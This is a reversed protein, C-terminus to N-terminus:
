FRTVRRIRVGVWIGHLRLVRLRRLLVDGCVVVQFAQVNFIDGVMDADVAAIEGTQKGFIIIHIRLFIENAAAHFFGFRQKYFGVRGDGNNRAGYSIGVHIRERFHIFFDEADGRGSM